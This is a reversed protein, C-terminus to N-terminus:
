LEVLTKNVVIIPFASIDVEPKKFGYAELQSAIARQIVQNSSTSHLYQFIGVGLTPFQKWHGPGSVIIYEMYQNDAEGQLFDGNDDIFGRERLIPPMLREVMLSITVDYM